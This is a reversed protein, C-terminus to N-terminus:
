IQIKRGGKPVQNKQHNHINHYLSYFLLEQSNICLGLGSVILPTEKFIWFKIFARRM